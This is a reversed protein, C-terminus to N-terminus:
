NVAQAHEAVEVSNCWVDGVLVRILLPYVSRLYTKSWM